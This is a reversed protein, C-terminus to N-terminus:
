HVDRLVAKWTAETLPETVLGDIHELVFWPDRDAPDLLTTTVLEEIRALVRALELAEADGVPM